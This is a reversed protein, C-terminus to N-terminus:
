VLSMDFAPSPDTERLSLEDRIGDDDKYHVSYFAMEMKQTILNKLESTLHEQEFDAYALMNFSRAFLFNVLESFCKVQEHHSLAFSFTIQNIYLIEIPSHPRPLPKLKIGPLIKAAVAAVKYVFPVSTVEIQKSAIPSWVSTAGVLTENKFFLIIDNWSFGNWVALRRELERNWDHGFMKRKDASLFSLLLDKDAVTASRVVFDHSSKFGFRGVINVMKYGALKKYHLHPIRTEVLNNKSFKNTEILATQYYRCHKTEEMDPSYRLLSGYFNRWERILKRNMSVRLDGLYGVTTLEGNIYGPRYSAVAVGQLKRDDDRLTFVLFHESREKLFRFFDNGRKYIVTEEAKLETQHYFALLEANDAETALSVHPFDLFLEKLNSPM